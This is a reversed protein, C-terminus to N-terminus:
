GMPGWGYSVFLQPVNYQRRPSSPKSPLYVGGSSADAYEDERNFGSASASASAGYESQRANALPEDAYRTGYPLTRPQDVYGGVGSGLSPEDLFRRDTSQQQQKRVKQQQKQTQAYAKQAKTYHNLYFMTFPMGSAGWGRSMFLDKKMVSEPFSDSSGNVSANATNRDLPKSPPQGRSSALLMALCLCISSLKGKDMTMPTLNKSSRHYM